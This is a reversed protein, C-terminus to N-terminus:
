RQATRQFRDVRLPQGVLHVMRRVAAASLNLETGASAFSGSRAAAEFAKIGNLFLLRRMRGEPFSIGPWSLETQAALGLSASINKPSECSAASSQLGRGASPRSLM